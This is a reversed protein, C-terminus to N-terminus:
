AAVLLTGPLSILLFLMNEPVHVATISPRVNAYMRDKEMMAAGGTVTTVVGM